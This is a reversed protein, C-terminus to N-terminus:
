NVDNQIWSSVKTAMYEVHSPELCFAHPIMETCSYINGTPFHTVMYEYHDRPAWQDNESYYIIYKSIHQQYFEHDLAKVTNMEDRAMTVVNKLVSSHMLQHSTVELGPYSQGTLLKVIWQRVSPIMYSIFTGAYGFLSPSVGNVLRTINVGNPTLAIDRLTPFLAIVRTINSQPRRRLVETCIYSGISHGMLIYNVEPGYEEIMQDLCDVKHQIQDDLSFVRTDNDLYKVTHGKHSVGRVEVNLSTHISHLFPTYYEVLGPNGPIFFLVTKRTSVPWLLTETPFGAVKWAHRIPLSM